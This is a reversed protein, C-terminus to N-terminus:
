GLQGDAPASQEDLLAGSWASPRHLQSITLALICAQTAVKHVDIGIKEM